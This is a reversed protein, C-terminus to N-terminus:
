EQDKKKVRSPEEALGVLIFSPIYVLVAIIFSLALHLNSLFAGFPYAVAEWVFMISRNKGYVEKVQSESKYNFLSEYAFFSATGSYLTLSFGLMIEAIAYWFFNTAVGYISVGLITKLLYAYLVNKRNMTDTIAGRPIELIMISIAYISQLVLIQALDLGNLLWKKIIVIVVLPIGSFGLSYYALLQKRLNNEM